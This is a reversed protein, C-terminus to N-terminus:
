RHGGPTGLRKKGNEVAFGKGIADLLVEKTFSDSDYDKEGLFDVLLRSLLVTTKGQRLALARLRYCFLVAKDTRIM